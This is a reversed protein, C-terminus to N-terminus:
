ELRWNMCSGAQNFKVDRCSDKFVNVSFVKQHGATSYHFSNHLIVYCLIFYLDTQGTICGTSLLDQSPHFDLCFPQEAFSIDALELDTGEIAM